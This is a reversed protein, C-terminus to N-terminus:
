PVPTAAPEAATMPDDTIVLETVPVGDSWLGMFRQEPTNGLAYECWDGKFVCALLADSLKWIGFWDTADVEGIANRHVAWLPPRGHSDGRMTIFDRDEIPVSALSNWASEADDRGGLDGDYTIVIAKLGDPLELPADSLGYCSSCPATLFLAQPVPLGEDEASAALLLAMPGGWSFGIMASRTTDIRAHEPSKLENLAEKTLSIADTIGTPRDYVPAIVVYGDRALHTLWSDADEPTPRTGEPCCGSLYIVVPFPGGEPVKGEMTTPEWIWYGGGTPGFKVAKAAPYARVLGGPGSDPQLPQAPHSQEVPTADMAYAYPVVMALIIWAAIM